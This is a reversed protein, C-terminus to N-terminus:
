SSAEAHVLVCCRGTCPSLEARGPDDGAGVLTGRVFSANLTCVLEPHQQVVSHFPCNRLVIDGDEATLPEYGATTLAATVDGSEEGLARGEREAAEALATRFAGSAPAADAASALLQALLSYNRPPLSVAVERSGPAYRKAPRGAGPGARGNTRAYDVDVLGAEALRDLHYAALTRGIGIAQAAEDRTVPEAQTRVFAYLRRRVEDALMGVGDLDDRTTNM